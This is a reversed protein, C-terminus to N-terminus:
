NTLYSITIDRRLVKLKSKVGDPVYQNTYDTFYKNFNIYIEKIVGKDTTDSIKRFIANEYKPKNENGLDKWISIEKDRLGAAFEYLQYDVAVMKLYRISLLKKELNGM